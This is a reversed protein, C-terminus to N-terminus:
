RDENWEMPADVFLFILLLNSELIFLNVVSNMWRVTLDGASLIDVKLKHEAWVM